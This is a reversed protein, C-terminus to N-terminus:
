SPLYKGLLPYLAQAFGVAQQEADEETTVIPAIIRVLAGDTRNTRIADLVLYIKGWYESAVVRGHSQYWYLVLQRDLGKEIVYRNVTIPGGTGGANEPAAVPVQIRGFSVPSWGAGPLCNLPSHMTDGERQSGYYGVYLGVPHKAANLYVRNIYEDVGLVELTREDFDSARAGSWDSITLPCTALAERIPVPEARMADGLYLATGLLLAGVALLRSRTTM